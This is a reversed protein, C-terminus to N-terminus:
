SLPTNVHSLPVTCAGASTALKYEGKWCAIGADDTRLEGAVAEWIKQKKVRTASWCPALPNLGELPTTVGKKAELCVREGVTTAAPPELLVVHTGGEEDTSIKAALVM